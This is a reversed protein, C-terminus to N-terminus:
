KKFPYLELRIVILCTHFYWLIIYLWCLMVPWCKKQKKILGICCAVKVSIYSIHKRSKNWRLLHCSIKHQCSWWHSTRWHQFCCCQCPAIHIPKDVQEVGGDTWGDMKTEACKQVFQQLSQYLVGNHYKGSRILKQKHELSNRNHEPRQNTFCNGPM